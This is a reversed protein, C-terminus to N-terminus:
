GTDITQRCGGLFLRIADGIAADAEDPASYASDELMWYLHEGILCALFHHALRRPPLDTRLQCAVDPRSFFGALLLLVPELGPQLFGGPLAPGDLADAIGRRQLALACESTVCRLFHHAFDCLIGDLARGSPDPPPLDMFLRERHAQLAANFLGAKGGFKVYITRVAVRAERAVAALSVKHYGLGIFLAAACDLLHRERSEIDARRPRGAQTRPPTGVDSQMLAM